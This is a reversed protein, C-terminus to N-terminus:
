MWQHIERNLERRLKKMALFTRTKVTGIPTGTREAVEKQTWGEFFSLELVERQAEPLRRMARRVRDAREGNLVQSFGAFPDPPAPEDAQIEEWDGGHRQRHRLRDLGRSRTIVVLWSYVSSRAADYSGARRWVYFFVEQLVEEADQTHRVIRLALGMLLQAYREYLEGLAESSAQTIRNLLEADSSKDNGDACRGAGPFTEVPQQFAVAIM